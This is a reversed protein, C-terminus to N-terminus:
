IAKGIPYLSNSLVVPPSFLEFLPLLPSRIEIKEAIFFIQASVVSFWSDFPFFFWVPTKSKWKSKINTETFVSM